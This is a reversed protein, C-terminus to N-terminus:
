DTAGKSVLSLILFIVGFAAFVIGAILFFTSPQVAGVIILIVGLVIAAIWALRGKTILSM